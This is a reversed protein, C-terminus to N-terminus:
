PVRWVTMGYMNRPANANAGDADGLLAREYAQEQRFRAQRQARVVQVLYWAHPIEPINLYAWDLGARGHVVCQGTVETIASRAASWIQAVSEGSLPTEPSRIQGRLLTQYSAINGYISVQPIPESSYSLQVTCTGHVLVARPLFPFNPSAPRGVANNDRPDHPLLPIQAAIALCDERLPPPASFQRFLPHGPEICQTIALVTLPFPSLLSIILLFLM